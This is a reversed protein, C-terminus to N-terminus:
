GHESKAIGTCGERQARHEGDIGCGGTGIDYQVPVDDRELCGCRGGEIRGEFCAVKCDNVRRHEVRHIRDRALKV